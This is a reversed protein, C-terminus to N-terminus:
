LCSLQFLSDFSANSFNVTSEIELREILLLLIFRFQQKLNFSLNNFFFQFCSNFQLTFFILLFLIEM